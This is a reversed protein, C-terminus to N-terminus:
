RTWWCGKQLGREQLARDGAVTIIGPCWSLKSAMGAKRHVIFVVASSVTSNARGYRLWDRDRGGVAQPVACLLRCHLIYRLNDKLESQEQAGSPGSAQRTSTVTYLVKRTWVSELHKSRKGRQQKEYKGNEMKRTRKRKEKKENKWIRYKPVNSKCAEPHQEKSTKNNSTKMISDCFGGMLEADLRKYVCYRGPHPPM